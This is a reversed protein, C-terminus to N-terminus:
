PFAPDPAARPGKPIRTEGSLLPLVPRQADLLTFVVPGDDIQDALGPM